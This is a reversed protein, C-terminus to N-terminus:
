NRRNRAILESVYDRTKDTVAGGDLMRALEEVRAGDSLREIATHTREDLVSKSVTFHDEAFSAIQPLHTICIVQHHGALEKIKRAVAEATNGSIGADIEDFIVTDVQDHRALICKLALMLRSLEGGSAVKALPKLPEGPNASFMFEPLDWGKRTMTEVSLGGDDETFCIDFVGKELCLLNLEEGVKVALRKAAEVRAGSLEGAKGELESTLSDLEGAMLELREDMEELERLEGAAERGFEQVDDLTPGYKRKLNQLLDIRATIEDLREPDDSINELYDHLRHGSEELQYGCGAVEESLSELESDFSAMKALANRVEALAENVRGNLLEYGAGGLKRLDESARLRDKEQELSDDEGNVVAAEEIERCQFTLFDRRQEKDNERQQLQQYESRLLTWRDFIAALESRKPLLGGFADVLDLHYAPTLLQQHDHQSAVSILYEVARSAIKGTTMGGNLYYRSSGKASIVRKVIIAGDDIEVGHEELIGPVPSNDPCTFLAEVTATEAGSRV